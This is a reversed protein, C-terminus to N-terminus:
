NTLYTVLWVMQCAASIPHAVANGIQSHCLTPERRTPSFGACQVTISEGDDAWVVDVAESSVSYLDAFTRRIAKRYIDTPNMESDSEAFVDCLCQQLPLPACSDHLDRCHFISRRTDDLAGFVFM